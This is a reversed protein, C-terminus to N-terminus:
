PFVGDGTGTFQYIVKSPGGNTSLSVINGPGAGGYTPAYLIGSLLTLFNASSNEFNYLVRIDTGDLNISYVGGYQNLGGSGAEGYLAGANVILNGIPQFQTANTTSAYLNNFDYLDSFTQARLKTLMLTLTLIIVYGINSKKNM